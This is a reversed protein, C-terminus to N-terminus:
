QPDRAMIAACMELMLLPGFRLYIKGVKANKCKIVKACKIKFLNLWNAVMAVFHFMM